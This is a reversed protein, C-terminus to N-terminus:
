IASTKGKQKHNHYQHVTFTLQTLPQQIHTWPARLTWYPPLLNSSATHLFPLCSLKSCNRRAPTPVYTFFSPALNQTYTVKNTSPTFDFAAIFKRTALNPQSQTELLAITSTAIQHWIRFAISNSQKLPVQSDIHHLLKRSFTNTKTTQGHALSTDPLLLCLSLPYRTGTSWKCWTPTHTNKICAKQQEFPQCPILRNVQHAM